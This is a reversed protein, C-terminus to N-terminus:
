SGGGRGAPTLDQCGRKTDAPLWTGPSDEGVMRSPLGGPKELVAFAEGGAIAQLCAHVNQRLNSVTKMFECMFISDLIGFCRMM